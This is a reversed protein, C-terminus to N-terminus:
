IRFIEVQKTSGIFTTKYVAIIASNPIRHNIKLDREKRFKIYFDGRVIDIQIGLGGDKQNARAMNIVHGDLPAKTPVEDSSNIKDLFKDRIYNFLEMGEKCTLDMISANIPVNVPSYLVSGRRHQKHKRSYAEARVWKKAKNQPNSCVNGDVFFYVGDGLWHSNGESLNFGNICISKANSKDTGHYAQYKRIYQSSSNSM